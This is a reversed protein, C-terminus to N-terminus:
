GTLKEFHYNKQILSFLEKMAVAIMAYDITDSALLEAQVAQWRHIQLSNAELWIEVLQEPNKNKVKVTLVAMTLARQISDLDGKVNSRAIVSWKSSVAYTNIKERFQNLNLRQSIVFYVQAVKKVPANYEIAAETINLAPYLSPIRAIKEAIKEPVNLNLYNELDREYKEKDPGMLLNPMMQYIQLVNKEYTKVLNAIDMDTAHNRLFWRISRRMLRVLELIMDIQVAPDVQYDLSYIDNWYNSLKFVEITIVYARVVAAPDAKLEERMQHVFTIGVDTILANSLQTAIIEARLRHQKLFENFRHHIVRPFAHNLFRTLYLDQTLDSNIINEKLIIKSYALLVALEPRTFNKGAARRELLEKDSPLYELDRNLKGSAANDDIFRTYLSFYSAALQMAVTLAKAQRYNNHLVLSAVEATMDVLLNNRQKYTLDGKHMIQNLLIKLNVEHDSCDVGGSNDIFDTNIKGGHLEYEIRAKQTFGLNGGEGVVRVKLENANVRIVDNSKDGVEAHTEHTAKVFTGIGGNWLLDVPARLIARIFENPTLVNFDTNLVAKIEPTLKISKSSRKFVGGGSSILEANYDEWSSRPLNFLRKREQFSILADPNPDIFIHQHNFAAILKIHESLLMGNGFVDGAMDGIGIVTFDHHRIDYRLQQFHEAVSEWAGRATIAMKKHDYGTSGGSAFADQLWFGYEKAISNATDSFTATGKDAAVVLYFDKDDYIITNAPSIADGNSLNDTLDLLGSIFNKYCSIAEDIVAERGKEIPLYRPVFGGKAGTPVIVANKVQQAKMLGLIETRFDERRDSWRIGGRAVKGARLHVGEFRPSYVFIEFMPKPLPLDPVLEPNFKFSIYPKPNNDKGLQFYNTRLTAKILHLYSRLIRDEDLNSVADLAKIIEQEHLEQSELSQFAIMPDFRLSFLELLLRAVHPNNAFTQEVYVQSFTFGIQKLYRTYGRILAVQRWNLSAALILQNFGDNEAEGFWIKAFAEQFNNKYNAANIQDVRSYLMSFDNIWYNKGNALILQFPQEGIVRMGMNELIPLVDSLPITHEARFLKFRVMNKPMEIPQYFSMELLHHPSLKEIHQIDYVASKASFSEHYSAPFARAYRLSMENGKEDGLATTLAQQLSDKWSRSMEILKTEIANFDYQSPNKSDIKMFYHIRALQSEAFLTTFSIEEASFDRRLEEQIRLLLETYVNDRPMYLLCSIFRGYADKHLFLRTRQRDQLQFIGLGLEFLEEKSAQFIDDRPLTEMIHLWTKIAHGRPPLAALQMVDSIKRRIVPITQLNCHYARSTYLGIVRKEGIIEGKKNFRKIIIVDTYRASHVTARTNTKAFVLIDKSLVRERAELPLDAYYRTRESKRSDRLVGLSQNAVLRLAPKGNVSIMKYNRVGLFTFNDELLWNLFFISEEIDATNLPESYHRIEDISQKIEDQMSQWDHVAIKADSLVRRCNEEIKKFADTHTVRDIEFYVPASKIAHTHDVDHAHVDLLQGEKDREVKMGGAHNVLHITYGLRNIEMRLTDVIFPQDDMLLQIVTHTTHWGDKEYQPNFIKLKLEGPHRQQMIKWHSQAMGFLDAVPRELLDDLPTNAFYHVIFKHFLKLEKVKLKTEAFQIIRRLLNKREATLYYSM